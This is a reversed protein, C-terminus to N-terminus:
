FLYLTLSWRQAQSPIKYSLLINNADYLM